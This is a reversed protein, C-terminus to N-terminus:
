VDLFRANLDKALTKAESRKYWAPSWFGSDDFMIEALPTSDIFVPGKNGDESKFMVTTGEPKSQTRVFGVGDVLSETYPTNTAALTSAGFETM